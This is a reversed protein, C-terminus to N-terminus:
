VVPKHILRFFAKREAKHKIALVIFKMFPMIKKFGRQKDLYREYELSVMGFFLEEWQRSITKITFEDSRALCRNLMAKYLKPKEILRHVADYANEASYVEIYDLDDKRLQQYAPDPGMLAPCGAKWANILKSPPKGSIDFASIDRVALVLDVNSYDNWDSEKILLSVGIKALQDKFFESKFEAALYDPHGIYAINKITSSRASNRPILGPQPWHTIYCDFNSALRLKNQVVRINALPALPTDAQIAIIFSRYSRDKTALEWYHIVCIQGPVIDSVLYINSYGKQKLYLFTQLIWCDEGTKFREPNANPDIETLGDTIGHTKNKYVFYIPYSFRM